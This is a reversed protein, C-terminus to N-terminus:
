RFDSFTLSLGESILKSTEMEPRGAFAKTKTLAKRFVFIVNTLRSYWCIVRKMRFTSLDMSSKEPMEKFTSVFTAISRLCM